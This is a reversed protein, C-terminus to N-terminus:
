DHQLSDPSTFHRFNLLNLICSCSFIITPSSMPVVLIQATTPSTELFSIFIIPIPVCGEMPSLFPTTTFMSDVTSDIFFATSSASSIDPHSIEDTYAPIAPPWIVPKLLRPITATLPDSIVSLSTSRTISAARATAIGMSRSTICTRGWSNMTSSSGPM